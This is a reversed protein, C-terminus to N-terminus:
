GRQTPLTHTHFTYTLISTTQILFLETYLSLTNTHTHPTCHHVHTYTEAEWAQHTAHTHTNRRDMNLPFRTYTHKHTHPTCHHVHTYTEAEWAQHTAHTHTNRRDM